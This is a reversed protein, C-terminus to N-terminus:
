QIRVPIGQRQGVQMYPLAVRASGSKAGVTIGGGGDGVGTINVVGQRPMPFAVRTPQNLLPVSVTLGDSSLEVVDGDEAVDDWVTIYVLDTRGADIDAILASAQPAPLNLAVVAQQRENVPVKDVLVPGAAAFAAARAAIDNSSLHDQGAGVSNWPAWAALSLGIVLAAAGWLMSRRREPQRKLLEREAEM